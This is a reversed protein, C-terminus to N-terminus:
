KNLLYVSYNLVTAFTVWLIYPIMLYAAPKSIKYFEVATAVILALLIVIWIFAFQYAEFNFFIFSWCFNFFLQLLYLTQATKQEKETSTTEVLYAAVGMLVYLITWAVPFLWDPPTFLPMVANQSYAEVGERTLFGSALGILLPIALNKFLTKYDIKLVM